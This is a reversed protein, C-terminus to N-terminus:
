INLHFDPDFQDPNKGKVDKFFDRIEKFSTSFFQAETRFQSAFIKWQRQSKRSERYSDVSLAILIGFVVVLVDVGKDILRESKFIKM